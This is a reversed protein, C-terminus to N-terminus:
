GTIGDGVREGYCRILLEWIASSVRYEHKGEVERAATAFTTRFAHM